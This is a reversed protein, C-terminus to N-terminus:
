SFWSVSAKSNSLEPYLMPVTCVGMRANKDATTKSGPLYIDRDSSKGLQFVYLYKCVDKYTFKVTLDTKM